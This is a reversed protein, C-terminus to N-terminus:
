IFRTIPHPSTGPKHVINLTVPVHGYVLTKHKKAYEVVNPKRGVDVYPVARDAILRDRERLEGGCRISV